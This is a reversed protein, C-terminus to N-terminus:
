PSPLFLCLSSFGMWQKVEWCRSSVWALTLLWSGWGPRGCIHIASAPWGLELAGISSVSGEFPAMDRDLADDHRGPFSRGDPSSTLPHTGDGEQGM